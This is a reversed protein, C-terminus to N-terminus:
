QLLSETGITRFSNIFVRLWPVEGLIAQTAFVAIVFIVLIVCFWLLLRFMQDKNRYFWRKFGAIIGRKRRPAAAIKIDKYLETFRHYSRKAIKKKLLQFSIAKQSAKPELLEMLITACQITCDKETKKADLKTLDIQYGLYVSHDRSLHLQRQELILYLIPYPLGSTICTLIINSCIEECEDLSFINGTYFNTLLRESKYPFVICFEDETSFLEVSIDELKEVQEFIQLFKKVTKHKRITLLTYLNNGAANLDRCIVISSNADEKIIQICKLRKNQSEYIM